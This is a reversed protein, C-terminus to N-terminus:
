DRVIRHKTVQQQSDLRLVLWESDLRLWGREPGLWYVMDWDRFYGTQDPEGILAVVQQCTMGDLRHRRLLDDVMRLRPPWLIDRPENEPSRWAQADFPIRHLRDDVMPWLFLYAMVTLTPTATGLVFFGVRVLKKGRLRAVLLLAVAIWPLWNVLQKLWKLWEPQRDFILGPDQTIWRALDMWHLSLFFCGAALFLGACFFAMRQKWVPAQALETLNM